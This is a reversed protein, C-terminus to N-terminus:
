LIYSKRSIHTMRQECKCNLATQCSETLSLAKGALFGGAVEGLGFLCNGIVCIDVHHREDFLEKSVLLIIMILTGTAAGNVCALAM